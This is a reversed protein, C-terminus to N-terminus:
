IAGAKKLASAIAEALQRYGAANPHILDSKLARTSLIDELANDELPIAYEQALAAYFPPVTIGLGPRPTAILLVRVNRSQAENLMQRLNAITQAEDQKRLFDNGGMCLILLDPRVDDLTEPLRDRGNETTEGPEGANVVSRQILSALQEPYSEAPQAGTGFTLSDGFALITANSPLPALQPSKGCGALGFLILLLALLIRNKM